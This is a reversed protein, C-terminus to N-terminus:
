LISRQQLVWFFIVFSLGLLIWAAILYAQKSKIDKTFLYSISLVIGVVLLMLAIDMQFPFRHHRYEFYTPIHNFDTRLM